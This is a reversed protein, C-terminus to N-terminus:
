LLGAERFSEMIEAREALLDCATQMTKANYAAQKQYQSHLREGMVKLESEIYGLRQKTQKIKQANM